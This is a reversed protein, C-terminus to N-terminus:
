PRRRVSTGIGGVVIQTPAVFGAPWFGQEPDRALRKCAGAETARTLEYWVSRRPFRESM